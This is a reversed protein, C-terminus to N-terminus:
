GTWPQFGDDIKRSFLICHYMISEFRVGFKLYLMSRHQWIRSMKLVYVGVLSSSSIVFIIIRSLTTVGCLTRELMSRLSAHFFQVRRWLEYYCVVINGFMSINLMYLAVLYLDTCSFSWCIWPQFRVVMKKLFKVCHPPYLHLCASLLNFIFINNQLSIIQIVM